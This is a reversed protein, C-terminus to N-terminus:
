KFVESNGLRRVGEELEEERLHGYGIILRNSHLGKVITHQEVPYVRVGAKEIQEIVQETFDINQFEAILHLGTSYGYIKVRDTFYHQLLRLLSDRRKKYRKKMKLIHRELHGAEIFRGLIIQNLSPTHLDSFWKLQRCREILELPLILYGLRLAPSLIKSFSGIYIVRDTWARCHASQLVRMVFNATM